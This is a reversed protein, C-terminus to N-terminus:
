YQQFFDLGTSHLNKNEQPREVAFGNDESVYVMINIYNYM